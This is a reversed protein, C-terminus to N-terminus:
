AAAREIEVVGYMQALAPALVALHQRWLPYPEYLAHCRADADMQHRLHRLAHLLTDIYRIKVPLQTPGHEPAPGVAVALELHIPQADEWHELVPGECKVTAYHTTILTSGETRDSTGHLEILDDEGLGHTAMLLKCEHFPNSDAPVPLTSRWADQDLLWLGARDVAVPWVEVRVTMPESM